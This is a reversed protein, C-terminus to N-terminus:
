IGLGNGNSDNKYDDSLGNTALIITDNTRIINYAQRLDPWEPMGMFAPNIVHVLVDSSLEGIVNWYRDRLEYRKKLRKERNNDFLNGLIGM